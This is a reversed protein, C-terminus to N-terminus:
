AIECIKGNTDFVERDTSILMEHEDKDLGNWEKIREYYGLNEGNAGIVLGHQTWSISIGGVSAGRPIKSGKWILRYKKPQQEACFAVLQDSTIM